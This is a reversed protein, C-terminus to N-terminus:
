PLNISQRDTLLGRRVKEFDSASIGGIKKRLVSLFFSGDKTLSSFLFGCLPAAAGTDKAARRVEEALGRNKGSSVELFCPTDTLLSFIGGHYRECVSFAAKALVTKAEKEDKPMRLPLGTREGLSSLYPADLSSFGLLFLPIKLRRLLCILAEHAAPDNAKKLVLVGLTHGAKTKPPSFLAADPCFSVPPCPRKAIATLEKATKIDDHSRLYLADARSLVAGSLYKWINGAISGIGGFVTVPKKRREARRMCSLYFILSRNSTENQLLNGGVLILGDAEKIKRVTRLFRCIVGEYKREPLVFFAREESSFATLFSSLIADDGINGQGYYGLLYYKKM